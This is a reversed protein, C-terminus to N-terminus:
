GRPHSAGVVILLPLRHSVHAVGNIETFRIIESRVFVSLM